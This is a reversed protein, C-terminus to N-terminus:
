KGIRALECFMAAINIEPDAVLTSNVAAKRIILIAEDKEEESKAFLDLNDYTWRLLEDMEEPRLQSCILQRAERIKGIKFLEVSDIRYDKGNDNNADESVLIGDISNLQVTNICKRLDPYFARVYTDLVSLEFDINETLLIEAVKATYDNMDLKEIHLSQCRSHLPPIIKQPYNCTLIFRSTASYQEFVGRLAAQSSPSLFDAEDLLVVKLKGFPMTSVFNTIKNRVDDIGNERSANIELFDFPDIGIENVLVKALATKGVGCPGELLMTPIDQDRIWKEIQNKQAINKFVYNAITKPRYKEVWVNNEM